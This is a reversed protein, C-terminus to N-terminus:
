WFRYTGIVTASHQYFDENFGDYQYGVKVTLRPQISHELTLFNYTFMAGLGFGNDDPRPSPTSSYFNSLHNWTATGSIMWKNEGTTTKPGYDAQVLLSFTGGRGNINPSMPQIDNKQTANFRYGSSLSLALPQSEAPKAEGQANKLIGPKMTFILLPNVVFTDTGFTQPGTSSVADGDGNRYFVPLSFLLYKGIPRTGTIKIGNSTVCQNGGSDNSGDSWIHVYDFAFKTSVLVFSFTSHAENVDTTFGNLTKQQNRRYDYELALTPQSFIPQPQSVPVLEKQGTFTRVPVLVPSPQPQPRDQLAEGVLESFTGIGENQAFAASTNFAFAFGILYVLAYPPFCKKVPASIIPVQKYIV